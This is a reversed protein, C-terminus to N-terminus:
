EPQCQGGPDKRMEKASSGEHCKEPLFCLRTVIKKCPSHGPPIIKKECSRGGAVEGGNGTIKEFFRLCFSFERVKRIKKM